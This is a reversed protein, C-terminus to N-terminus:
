SKDGIIEWLKRIKWNELQHYGFLSPRVKKLKGNIIDNEEELRLMNDGVSTLPIGLKERLIGSGYVDDFPFYPVEPSIDHIAVAADFSFLTYFGAVYDPYFDQQYANRDLLM